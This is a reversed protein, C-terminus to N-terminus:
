SSLSARNPVYRVGGHDSTILRGGRREVRLLRQDREPAGVPAVLVAGEGLADLWAPPIEAVAFTCVIKKVGAFLAASTTADGGLVTVNAIPELLSRARSALQADIEVTTVHGERGVIYSALAAGYGTGSGLELLADGARLALLRFSLLYAHPASITALGSEDLPLPRDEGAVAIDEPRVFRERPVALLAHLHVPDFPGLEREVKAVLAERSATGM